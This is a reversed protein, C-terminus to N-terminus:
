HWRTESIRAITWIFASALSRRRILWRRMRSVGSLMTLEALGWKCRDNNLFFLWCWWILLRFFFRERPGLLRTFRIARSTGCIDLCSICIIIWHDCRRTQAFVTDNWRLHKDFVKFATYPLKLLCENNHQCLSCVSHVYLNANTWCLELHIM